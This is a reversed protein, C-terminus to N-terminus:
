FEMIVTVVSRPSVSIIGDKDNFKSYKLNEDAKASTTYLNVSKPMRNDITKVKVPYTTNKSYNVMVFIAKSIDAPAYGSVMLGDASMENTKNDSRIIGYQHMGPRIFRSYNGLAWLIKSEYVKGDNKNYDIYVLGDKYDYPSVALWWYWSASGAITLDYHILRAAYLAPDMGLDRGNGNIEDNSELICYETQWFELEPNVGSIGNALNQREEIM